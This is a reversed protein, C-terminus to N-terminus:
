LSDAYMKLQMQTCWCKLQKNRSCHYLVRLCAASSNPFPFLTACQQPLTLLLFMILSLCEPAHSQMIYSAGLYCIACTPVPFRLSSLLWQSGRAAHTPGEVTTCVARALPAGRASFTEWVSIPTGRLPLPHHRRIPLDSPSWPSGM